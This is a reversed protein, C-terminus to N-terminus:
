FSIADKEGTGRHYKDIQKEQYYFLFFNYFHLFKIHLLIRFSMIFFLWWLLLCGLEKTYNRSLCCLCLHFVLTGDKTGM